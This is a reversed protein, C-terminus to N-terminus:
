GRTHSLVGACHGVTINGCGAKDFATIAGGEVAVKGIPIYIKGEGTPITPQENAPYDTTEDVWTTEEWDADEPKTGTEIQPLLIEDDDDRNAVVDIPISLLFVRDTSVDIEHREINWNQDGCYIIGGRIGVKTEADEGEGDLWTTTEGFPCDTTSNSDESIRRGATKLRNYLWMIAEAHSRM